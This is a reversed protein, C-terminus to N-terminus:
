SNPYASIMDMTTGIQGIKGVWKRFRKDFREHEWASPVHYDSRCKLRTRNIVTVLEDFMSYHSANRIKRASEFLEREELMDALVSMNEPDYRRLCRALQSMLSAM